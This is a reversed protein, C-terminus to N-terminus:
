RRGFVLRPGTASGAIESGGRASLTSVYVYKVDSGDSNLLMRM